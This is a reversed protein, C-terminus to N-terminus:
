SSKGAIRLWREMTEEENVVKIEGIIVKKEVSQISVTLPYEGEPITSPIVISYEEVITQGLIPGVERQYRDLNGFGLDHTELAVEGITTTIQFRYGNSPIWYLVLHILSGSEVEQNPLDAGQLIIGVFDAQLHIEPSANSTVMELPEMSLQYLTLRNRGGLGGQGQYGILVPIEWLGQPVLDPPLAQTGRLRGPENITTTSYIDRNHHDPKSPTGTPLTPLEVDSRTDYVLQWYFADYGFVGGQTILTCNEPLIEWTNAYFDNIAVDESRDNARWNRLLPLFYALLVSIVLIGTAIKQTLKGPLFKILATLGALTEVLGFAIFIAWLFHAPLFFVELDFAQYQIFFWVHVLYMGVLLYYHRPRRLLLAALGIVGLLLGLIGFEGRVLDLYIVLRDPLERIPFAFKLQSFAGLTYSYLGKLSTPARALMAHDTLTSAKLPLWLFQSIGIGFGIIGALWWTPRKLSKIDTLLIFIVFAPAFGLNSLHTGSSLGFLLAFLFFIWDSRTKEWQLLALLTLAIMAINPVYVEAIGTQSWFTTSFAFLLTSAFAALRRFPSSAARPHLLAVIILYLCGVGLGGTLASMLNMRHAVDGVPLWTFVKGLWTYFPYGPSHALGLVYPVTALENGDPSLYSLSPTLTANYVAIAIVVLIFALFYDVSTYTNPHNKM